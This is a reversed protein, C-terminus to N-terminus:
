SSTRGGGNVDGAVDMAELIHRAAVDRGEGRLRLEAIEKARTRIGEAEPGILVRLLAAGFEKAEVGPASRRSGWRGIGLYEARHAFDYTDAWVSLVVQPVGACLAEWYSNAGGHNVSCVVNGTQLVAYPEAKVWGMVRVADADFDVRLIEEIRCGKEHVEYADGGHSRKLKWLFQLNGERGSRQWARRVAAVATAMEVAQGETTYSLSGLNILVTPGRALWNHLEPDVDGVSAVSKVIPGCPIVNEPIYKLPFDLDPSSAVLMKLDKPPATILEGQDFIRAGTEDTLHKRTERARGDFIMFFVFVFIYFINLPILYWPVPFPFATGVCPYKWLFAAWPQLPAAFEKLTNPSLIVFRVGMQRVVTLGPTFLNDVVALDPRVEEVIRRVERCNRVLQTGTYPMSARSLISLITPRTCLTPAMELLRSVGVDPNEFWAELSSMGDIEHFQIPTAHPNDHAIAAATETVAPKIAKFSAIHIEVTPDTELMSRATALFVNAQGYESNTLMLIKRVPPM